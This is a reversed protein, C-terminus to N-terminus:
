QDGFAPWSRPSPTPLATVYPPPFVTVFPGGLLPSEPIDTAVGQLLPSLPIDPSQIEPEENDGPGDANCSAEAAVM